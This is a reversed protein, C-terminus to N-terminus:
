RHEYCILGCQLCRGAEDRAIRESFGAEAELGQSIEDQSRLPMINRPIRSVGALFSVSQILSHRTIVEDPLCLPDGYMVMHMAAAARRGGAMAKVAADWAVPTTETIEATTEAAPEQRCFILEPLRGAACLITQAPLTHSTGTATDTYVITELTRGTGLLREVAANYITVGAAAEAAPTEEDAPNGNVLITVQDAGAQKCAAVADAAVASGGIIVTHEGCSVQKKNLLDILLALGPAPHRLSDRHEAAQRSDWGGTALFVAQYDDALLSDVSFDQGAIKGAELKVGMAKIGDIDYDLIELPLRERAIAKRLLGGFHASAELVLPSHG